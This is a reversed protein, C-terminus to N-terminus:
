SSLRRRRHPRRDPLQHQHRRRRRRLGAAFGRRVTTRPQVPPQQASARSCAGPATSCTSASPSTPSSTSSARGAAARLQLSWTTTRGRRARLRPQRRSGWTLDVLHFMLFLGVIIGTWRMTRSAFNAAVYDRTSQYKVPGPRATSGPSRTPARPHPAAFAVISGSACCGCRGRHPPPDARAARAPVRRLPQDGGPGLYMKLNGVMHVFVFGMLVIGTLAMVWKKGVASRYLDVIAFPSRSQAKKIPRSSIDPTLAPPEKTATM